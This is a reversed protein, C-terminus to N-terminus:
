ASIAEHSQVRDRRRRLIMSVHQITLLAFLFDMVVMSVSMVQIPILVLFLTAALWVSFQIVRGRVSEPRYYLRGSGHWHVLNAAFAVLWLGVLMFFVLSM